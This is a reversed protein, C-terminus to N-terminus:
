TNEKYRNNCLRAVVRYNSHVLASESQPSKTITLDNQNGIGFGALLDL